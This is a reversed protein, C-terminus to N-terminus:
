RYNGIPHGAADYVNPDEQPPRPPPVARDADKPLELAVAVGDRIVIRIRKM